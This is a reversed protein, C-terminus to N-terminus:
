ASRLLPEPEDHYLTPGFHLDTTTGPAQSIAPETADLRVIQEMIDTWLVLPQPAEAALPKLRQEAELGQMAEALSEPTISRGCADPMVGLAVRVRALQDYNVHSVIEIGGRWTRDEVVCARRVVPDIFESAYHV